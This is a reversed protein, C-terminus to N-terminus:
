SCSVRRLTSTESIRGSRLDALWTRAESMAERYALGRGAETLALYAEPGLMRRADEILPSLFAEDAPDRHIGTQGIQAEVAGFTRAARSWDGHYAALGACVELAGQGAPHSGVEDAIQLVELLMGPVRDSSGRGISVMALNLLGIAALEQDQLERALSLMNAFLPEAADLRGELRNLQALQNLAAALERKNGLRRALTLAEELYSRAAAVDGRGLCTSGLPQLAVAIRHQDGIGKAIALSKELYGQAELYRGMFYGLQGADFLADCCASQDRLVGQRELAEITVGYGMELLGRVFWYRRLASVLRLGLEVGRTSRDCWAHASLLNERELDLRALWAAQDAGTLRPRAEEAFALYCDLHRDRVADGEGSEELRQRAYERVTDLMRYRGGHFEMVVLSKEVLRTLLDLVDAEAIEGSAGVAEAAELTFGGAFVALRQLLVREDETLLDYSWDILARLTQQRPLATRDGGSLLRFRDTLREAIKEVSLSRVRAAALELALPIGDLRRCIAAVACSNQDTVAFAPQASGARDAFLRVAEVQMMAAPGMPEGADPVAMPHLSYTTEGPVHLPERSSALVKLMRGSHLLLKALDACAALLHEANDFILLLRRDRVFGALAEEVRHGPEEKVGLVSAVAQAVRQADSLPAFEILWVGDPYDDLVDAAIQLSLRTKGLGGMGVLTLLRTTDLLKRVDASERERGVFSAVQQPLNNPTSELSRLAPFDQRLKPHVLQFVHEPKALDRLRVVGLDRLGVGASLRGRVLECAAQSLLVQGGHAASTLRAARNVATGFVDNDRPEVRGTHLGCRVQLALGQTAEPAALSQQLELTAGVADLPDRFSAHAGDGTMKIVTGRHSAVATRLLADHRALALRMRGPECEWLRTSGEIDTFLITAVIPSESM